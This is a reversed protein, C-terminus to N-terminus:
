PPWHGEKYVNIKARKKILELHEEVELELKKDNGTKKLNERAM